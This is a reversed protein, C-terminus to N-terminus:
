NARKGKVGLHTVDPQSPYKLGYGVMRDLGIHAVWILAFLVLAQQNLWSGILGITLAGVYSHLANYVLVGVRPSKIYALFALDPWLLLGFFWWWNGDLQWYM